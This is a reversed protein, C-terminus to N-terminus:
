TSTSPCSYAFTESANENASTADVTAAFHVPGVDLATSNAGGDRRSDRRADEGAAASTLIRRVNELAVSASSPNV